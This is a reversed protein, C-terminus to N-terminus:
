LASILFDQAIDSFQRRASSAANLLLALGAGSDCNLVWQERFHGRARENLVGTIHRPQRRSQWCLGAADLVSHNIWRSWSQTWARHPSTGISGDIGLDSLNPGRLDFLRLPSVVELRAVQWGLIRRAILLGNWPQLVEGAAAAFGDDVSGATSLAVYLVGNGAGAVHHDFRGRGPSDGFRLAGPAHGAAGPEHVRVVVSGPDLDFWDVATLDLPRPPPPWRAM